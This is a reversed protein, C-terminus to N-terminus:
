DSNFKNVRFKYLKIGQYMHSSLYCNNVIIHYNVVVDYFLFFLIAKNISMEYDTNTGIVSLCLVM